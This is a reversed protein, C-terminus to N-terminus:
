GGAEHPMVRTVALIPVDVVETNVPIAVSASKLFEAPKRLSVFDLKPSKARSSTIEAGDLM